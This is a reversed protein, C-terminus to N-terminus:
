RWTGDERRGQAIVDWFATRDNTNPFPEDPVDKGLFACLPEWGEEVNFVLLRDAPISAKVEVIHANYRAVMEEHALVPPFGSREIVDHALYLWGEMEPPAEERAETLKSITSSYSEAWIDPHRTTLIFKAEPYVHKLEQFFAATPWDVASNFGDFIKNWRPAGALAEEWLPIQRVKDELVSEMHHCPGLGLQNLAIKLSNTGTRGLGAGIVNM